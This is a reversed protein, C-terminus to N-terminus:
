KAFSPLRCSRSTAFLRQTGGHCRNFFALRAPTRSSTYLGISVGGELFWDAKDHLRASTARWINSRAAVPASPVIVFSGGDTMVRDPRIEFRPLRALRQRPSGSM